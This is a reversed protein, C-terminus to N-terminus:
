SPVEAFSLSVGKQRAGEQTFDPKGSTMVFLAKPKVLMLAAAVPATARLPPRFVATCRGLSDSNLDAVLRKLEGNVGFYSGAKLIGTVSPTWGQLELTNGAAAVRVNPTGGAPGIPAERRWDWARVRNVAGDLQDTFAEWLPLEDNRMVGTTITFEWRPTGITQAQVSGDFTSRGMKQPVFLGWAVSAPRLADPWDITSPM